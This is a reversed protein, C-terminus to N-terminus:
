NDFSRIFRSGPTWDAMTLAFLDNVEIKRDGLFVYNRDFDYDGLYEHLVMSGGEDAGRSIRKECVFHKGEPSVLVSGHPPRSVESQQITERKPRRIRTVSGSLEVGSPVIMTGRPTLLYEKESDIPLTSMPSYGWALLTEGRRSWVSASSHERVRKKTTKSDWGNLQIGVNGDPYFRVIETSHYRIAYTAEDGSSKRSIVLRTEVGLPRGEYRDRAKKFYDHASLWNRISAM